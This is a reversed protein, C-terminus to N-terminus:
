SADETKAQAIGLKLTELQSSIRADLMGRETEVVCGGREVSGDASIDLQGRKGLLNELDTEVKRLYSLDEPNVRLRIENCDLVQELANRAVDAVREPRTELEHGIIKKALAFALEVASQEARSSVEKKEAMLVRGYEDLLESGRKLESMAEERAKGIGTAYKAQFEQEVTQRIRIREATLIEEMRANFEQENIQPPAEHGEDVFMHRYYNVPRREFARFCAPALTGARDARIIKKSNLPKV